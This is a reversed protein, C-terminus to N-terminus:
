LPIKDAHIRDKHRYFGYVTLGGYLNHRSHTATGNKNTHLFYESDVMVGCHRVKGGKQFLVVDGYEPSTVRYFGWKEALDVFFNSTKYWDETYGKYDQLIIGLEEAYFLLLLNLCDGSDVGRGGHSFKILLYKLHSV